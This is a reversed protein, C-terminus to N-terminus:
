GHLLTCKPNLLLDSIEENHRVHYMNVPCSALLLVAQHPCFDFTDAVPSLTYGTYITFGGKDRIGDRTFLTLYFNQLLM